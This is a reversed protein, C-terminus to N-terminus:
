PLTRSSYKIQYSALFAAVDNICEYFCQLAIADAESAALNGQDQQPLARLPDLDIVFIMVVAAKCARDGSSNM